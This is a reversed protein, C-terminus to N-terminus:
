VCVCVCEDKVSIQDFPIVFAGPEGLATLLSEVERSERERERGRQEREKEGERRRGPEGLCSSYHMLDICGQVSSM